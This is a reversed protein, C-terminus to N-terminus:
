APHLWPYRFAQTNGPVQTLRRRLRVPEAWSQRTLSERLTQVTQGVKGAPHLLTQGQPLFGRSSGPFGAEVQDLVVTGNGLTTLM